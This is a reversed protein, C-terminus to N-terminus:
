AQAPTIIASATASLFRQIHKLDEPANERMQDIASGFAAKQVALGKEYRNEPTTTSQGELPLAIDRSVFVENTAILFDIGKAIGVYPMAQYLVEKIEVPTVGVNLAGGVMVKYETLANSGITSALIMMLRIKVDLGDHAIVEDFAFNNFLETFEPDTQQLTSQYNPLVQQHNRIAAETLKIHNM